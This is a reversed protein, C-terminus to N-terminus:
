GPFVFFPPINNGLASVALALTVLQGRETSTAAGIPKRGKHGIIGAPHQVTTVGTEGMNWIDGPGIFDRVLVGVYNDFFMKVNNKNFSTMRAFSAAQPKSISLTLHWKLVSSIWNRGASKNDQWARPIIVDLFVALEYAMKRFETPTLGCYVDFARKLYLELPTEEEVNFM